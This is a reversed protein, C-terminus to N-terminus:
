AVEIEVPQINFSNPPGGTGWCGHVTAQKGAWSKPDAKALVDQQIRLKFQNAVSQFDTQGAFDGFKIDGTCDRVPTGSVAAGLPIRVTTGAPMGPVTLVVFNGDVAGATGTAKVAYACAGSGLDQGYQKCAAAPDAEVAKAIVVIDDAESKIKEAVKPFEETGYTEANFPPPNLEAVAQPSLFKTDLVVAILVVVLVAVGVIKKTSSSWRRKGSSMRM